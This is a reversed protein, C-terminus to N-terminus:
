SHVYERMTSYLKMKSKDSFIVDKWFSIWKVYNKCWQFRSNAHRRSLLTKESVIGGFLGYKKIICKITIIITHQSSKWDTFMESAM